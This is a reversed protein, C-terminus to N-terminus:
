SGGPRCARILLSGAFERVLPVREFVAGIASAARILPRPMGPHLWDFPRIDVDVFGARALLRALPWRVFATEDPSDGLLDKVFPVNKQIAIQPNLMNPEAFSFRGGPKLLAWMRGLAAELDLHHLISSGVVADFPGDIDCDEFRKLLFRVRDAGLGRQRALDLLDPSIDVAVIRAGTAALMATFLGTGCGVELALAGPGLGAGQAILQGRRAARRQGAPTSWGWVSEAGAAALKRGHAIEHEARAATSAM